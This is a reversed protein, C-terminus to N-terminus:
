PDCATTNGWFQHEPNSRREPHPYTQANVSQMKKHSPISGVYQDPLMCKKARDCFQSFRSNAENFYRDTHGNTRGCRVVPNGSSPNEHFEINSSKEFIQRSLELKM